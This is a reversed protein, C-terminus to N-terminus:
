RWHKIARTVANGLDNAAIGRSGPAPRKEQCILDASAGHRSSIGRESRIEEPQAHRVALYMSCRARQYLAIQSLQFIGKMRASGQGGSFQARQLPASYRDSGDM